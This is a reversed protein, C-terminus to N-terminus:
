FLRSVVPILIVVSVVLALREVTPVRAARVSTAALALGILIIAWSGSAVLPSLTLLTTATSMGLLALMVRAAKGLPHTAWSELYLNATTM